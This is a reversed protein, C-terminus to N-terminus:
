NVHLVRIKGVVRLFVYIVLTSIVLSRFLEMRIGDSFFTLCYALLLPAMFKLRVGGRWFRRVLAALSVVTMVTTVLVFGYSRSVYYLRGLFGPSYGMPDQFNLIEYTLFRDLNGYLIYDGLSGPYPNAQLLILLPDYGVVRGLIASLAVQLASHEFESSDKQSAYMKAIAAVLEGPGVGLAIATRYLNLFPYVIVFAGGLLLITRTSFVWRKLLYQSALLFLAPLVLSLKSTFLIYNYAALALALVALRKATADSGKHLAFFFAALSLNPGVYASAINILGGLGFPLGAATPSELGFYKRLLGFFLTCLLAGYGITMPNSVFTFQSQTEVTRNGHTRSSKFFLSPVLIGIFGVVVVQLSLKIEAPGAGLAAVSFISRISVAEGLSTASSRSISLFLMAQAIYAVLFIVAAVMILVNEPQRKGLHRLISVCACAVSVLILSAEAVRFFGSGILYATLGVALLLPAAVTLRRNTSAM